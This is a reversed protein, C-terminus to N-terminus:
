YKCINIIHFSLRILPQSTDPRRTAANACRYQLILFFNEIKINEAGFECVRQGSYSSSLKNMPGRLHDEM